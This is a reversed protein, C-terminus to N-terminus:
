FPTAIHQYAANVMALGGVLSVIAASSLTGSRTSSKQRAESVLQTFAPQGMGGGSMKDDPIQHLAIV